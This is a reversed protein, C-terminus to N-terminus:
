SIWCSSIEIHCDPCCIDYDGSVADFFEYKDPHKCGNQLKSMKTRWVQFQDKIDALERELAKSEERIESQTM